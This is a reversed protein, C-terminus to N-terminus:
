VVVLGSFSNLFSDAKVNHAVIMGVYVVVVVLVSVTEMQMQEGILGIGDMIFVVCSLLERCLGCKM